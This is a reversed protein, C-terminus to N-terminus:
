YLWSYLCAGELYSACINRQVIQIVFTTHSNLKFLLLLNLFSRHKMVVNFIFLRIKMLNLLDLSM